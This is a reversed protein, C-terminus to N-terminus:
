GRLRAAASEWAAPNARPRYRHTPQTARILARLSALDHPVAGLARAQILANGLTTAETPGALVPLGCADATLQCLLHNRAGGGVIHIVDIDRNSLRQADTLAARHALALSDLVCRVTEAPTDPPKQGLRACEAAIRTPMDGPPLFTPNDADVVARFPPVEAAHRLLEDLDPDGWAPLCEQLLWLGMVNRLYRITGDVGAENTFNAARSDETLV